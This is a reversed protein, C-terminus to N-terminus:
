AGEETAASPEELVILMEGNAVQDGEAVLLKTVTGTIPATIRHEMKMAELILLLQGQEVTDGEKIHTALVNGPMPAVLGGQFDDADRAPFRPLERVSVDGRPGHVFWQDGAATVVFNTRGRDIEIDVRDGALGYVAVAHQREDVRVEFTGDRLARYAVVIDENKEHEGRLVRAFRFRSIEPPMRSNRWGSAITPLVRAAARRVAQSHIVIAILAEDLEDPSVVRVRDPAVREIFDTTTDGRIFEPSRLTAVLFDRNSTVGQIRMGELVRALRSAAERRTPAKVIVKAMMPDFEIAIESGSEVGSDFRAISEDAPEWAVLKGPAPLFDNNPDEAYIRAEIAHGDFGLEDQTYGLAEGEAIRLQERVLDLGTIEETVPHEVQLRTNVELFWFDNGAVLFEVTGASSYGISRAASLAAEGMRMRLEDDVAPSPAEEIIKQHRRQISCEREFLHVLNGHNDGLIQIEIHRSSTLWRELFLRDDGFAAKAERRAGNVADTLGDETEVVRMGRGGGGAVAKVLVPYGIERAAAVIDEGDAFQVAPLTPVGAEQMLKKASLKDGMQGITAPTPGVWRMGAGVVAEAFAANESLFGYGPHVADAGSRRCADLVKDLDLYTEASTSGGLAIATDAERVFPATADGDAYVAVTGIGMEHATRIIRRAIEGRNAILLRTIPTITVDEM